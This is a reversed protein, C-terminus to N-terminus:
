RTWLPKLNQTKEGHSYVGSQRNQHALYVIGFATRVHKPVREIVRGPCHAMVKWSVSAETVPGITHAVRAAM